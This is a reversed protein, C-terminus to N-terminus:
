RERSVFRVCLGVQRHYKRTGLVLIVINKVFDLVGLSTKHVERAVEYLSDYSPPPGEINVAEEYSPLDNAAPALLTPPGATTPYVGIRATGSSSAGPQQSTPPPIAVVMTRANAPGAREPPATTTTATNTSDLGENRSQQFMDAYLFRVMRDTARISQSRVLLPSNRRSGHMVDSGPSPVPRIVFLYFFVLFGRLGNGIRRKTRIPKPAVRTATRQREGLLMWWVAVKQCQCEASKTRAVRPMPSDRLCDLLCSPAAASHAARCRAWGTHRAMTAGDDDDRLSTDHPVSWDRPSRSRKLTHQTGTSRLYRSLQVRSRHDSLERWRWWWQEHVHETSNNNTSTSSRHSSANEPGAGAM